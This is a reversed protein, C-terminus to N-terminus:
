EHKTDERMRNREMELEEELEDLRQLMAMPVSHAPWQSKLEEIQQELERIRDSASM